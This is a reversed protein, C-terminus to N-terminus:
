KSKSQHQQRYHQIIIIVGIGIFMLLVTILMLDANAELTPKCSWMEGWISNFLTAADEYNGDVDLKKQARLLIEGVRKEKESDFNCTPFLNLSSSIKRSLEADRTALYTIRWLILGIGGIVIAIIGLVYNKDLKM